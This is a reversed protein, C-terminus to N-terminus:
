LKGPKEAPPSTKRLRDLAAQARRVADAAWPKHGYLEIVARYMGAARAPKAAAIRDGYDLRRLVDDPQEGSPVDFQKELSELQRKALKLCQAVPDSNPRKEGDDFLDILARLKAMGRDPDFQACSLAEVYAQEVPQLLGPAGPKKARRDFKRQLNDLEIEEQYQRLQKCHPDSSFQSLFLHIDEEADRLSEASGGSM